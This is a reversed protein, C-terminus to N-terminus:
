LHLSVVQHILTSVSWLIKQKGAYNRILRKQTQVSFLTTVYSSNTFHLVTGTWTMFAYLPFVPVAGSMRVRPALQHNTTLM